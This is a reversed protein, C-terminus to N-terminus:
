RRNERPEGNRNVTLTRGPHYAMQVRHEAGRFNYTVDWFAPRDSGSVNACREVPRTGYVTGGSLNSGIAAGAIAGGATAADNGRGSGVQHGLIGGILAGAIAGGVQSDSPRAIQQEEVWCRREPPGMVARVSTVDAEFLREDRRPRADYVPVPPPPAFRREEIRAGRVVPRVSSVRNNLGMAALSPYRGPRLVVCRGQFRAEECVEWREGFVVASSARDNFDVRELNGIQRETRFSRGDFGERGYFVIEAAAQSAFVLGAAAMAMRLKGNM